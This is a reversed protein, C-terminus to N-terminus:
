GLRSHNIKSSTPATTRPSAILGPFPGLPSSPDPHPSGGQHSAPYSSLRTTSTVSSVESRLFKQAWGPPNENPSPFTNAMLPRCQFRWSQVVRVRWNWQALRVKSMRSKPRTRQSRGESPKERVSVRPLVLHLHLVPHSVDCYPM